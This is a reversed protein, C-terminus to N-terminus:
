ALRFTCSTFLGHVDTGQIRGDSSTAGNPCGASTVLPQACDPGETHGLHIEYGNEGPGSEPLKRLLTTLPV